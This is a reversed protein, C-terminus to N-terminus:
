DKLYLKSFHAGATLYWNRWTLRSWTRRDGGFEARDGPTLSARISDWFFKMKGPSKAIQQGQAFGAALGTNFSDQAIRAAHPDSPYSSEPDYERFMGNVYDPKRGDAGMVLGISFGSRMRRRSIEAWADAYGSGLEVFVGLMSILPAIAPLAVGLFEVVTPAFIELATHIAEFIDISKHIRHFTEASYPADPIQLAIPRMEGSSRSMEMEYPGRRFEYPFGFGRTQVASPVGGEEDGGMDQGFGGQMWPWRRHRRRHRSWPGQWNFQESEMRRSPDYGAFGFAEPQAPAGAQPTASADVQPAKSPDSPPAPPMNDQPAPAAAPQCAQQLAALTNGDLTGSTPLQTQTQFTRIARLTAPGLTGDQPVWPGIVQALCNQAWAVTQPDDM